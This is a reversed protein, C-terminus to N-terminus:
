CDQLGLGKTQARCVCVDLPFPFLSDGGVASEPRLCSLCSPRVTQRGPVMICAVPSEEGFEERSNRM